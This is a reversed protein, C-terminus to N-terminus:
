STFHSMLKIQFTLHLTHCWNQFFNTDFKFSIIWTKINYWIKWTMTHHVWLGCVRSFSSTVKTAKVFETIISLCLTVDYMASMNVKPKWHLVWKFSHTNNNPDIKCDNQWSCTLNLYSWSPLIRSKNLWPLTSFMTWEPWTQVLFGDICIMLLFVNITFKMRPNM